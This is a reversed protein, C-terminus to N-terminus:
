FLSHTKLDWNKAKFNQPSNLALSKQYGQRQPGLSCQM